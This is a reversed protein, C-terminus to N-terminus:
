MRVFSDPFYPKNGTNKNNNNSHGDLMDGVKIQYKVKGAFHRIIFAPEMVPTAVFFKNEEHQQKFKALLTQNTARPFSPFLVSLTLEKEEFVTIYASACSLLSCLM